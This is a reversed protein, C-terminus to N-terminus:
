LHRTRGACRGWRPLRSLEGSVSSAGVTPSARPDGVARAEASHAANPQEVVAAGTRCV